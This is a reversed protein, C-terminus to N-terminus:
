VGYLGAYKTELYDLLTAADAPRGCARAILEAPPWLRGQRHICEGLWGLVPGLDGAALRDGLDPLDDRMARHLEAAYLNGLTYTPFYGFLGVAWHVDQLVGRAADPVERGFDQRFRDNWATELEAVELERRILARELDFRMMVHLNYHVEDAETRIFGTRVANVARYLDEASGHGTGGFANRMAGHLWGCFERSRGIQNEFLRSQSEHVGMSAATGAPLLAQAEPLAQEYRGHGLEHITSYLCEFPDDPNVRTTIRVDGRTGSASPHVALDLRGASWDFGFADALRRSLAIQAEAPFRGGARVPAEAGAAAAIRARLDRLGPRLRDFLDAVDRSAMGPEYDELLADYPDAGADTLCDAESRKLEVIRVLAPVFEAFANRRRAAEWAVQGLAAARGLDAALADPIRLARRHLRLAEAVNVRGAQDLEPAEAAAAAWDAIRPDIRLRHAAAAVAGSAEARQAAGRKPMQTEQDWTLLGAVQGLAALQRLHECLQGYATTGSV